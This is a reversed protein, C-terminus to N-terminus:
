RADARRPHVTMRGTSDRGAVADVATSTLDCLSGNLSNQQLAQFVTVLADRYHGDLYVAKRMVPVLLASVTLGRDCQSLTDFAQQLASQSITTTSM